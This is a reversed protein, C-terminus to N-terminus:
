KYEKSHPVLQRVRRDELGSCALMSPFVLISFVFKIGAFRRGRMPGHWHINYLRSLCNSGLIHVHQLADDSTGVLLISM